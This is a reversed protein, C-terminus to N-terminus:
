IARMVLCLSRAEKKIDRTTAVYVVDMGFHAAAGVAIMMAPISLLGLAFILIAFELHHFICFVSIYTKGKCFDVAKRMSFSGTKLIYYLYHDIDIAFGGVLVLFAAHSFFPYLAASLLLSAILHMLLKM